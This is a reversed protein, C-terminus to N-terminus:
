EATQGPFAFVQSIAAEVSLSIVGCRIGLVLGHLREAVVFGGPVYVSDGEGITSWSVLGASALSKLKSIDDTFLSQLAVTAAKTNLHGCLDSFPVM